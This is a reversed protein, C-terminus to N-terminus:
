PQCLEPFGSHVTSYLVIFKTLPSLERPFFNESFLPTEKLRPRIAPQSATRSSSAHGRDLSRPTTFPSLKEAHQHSHRCRHQINQAPQRDRNQRWNFIHLSN